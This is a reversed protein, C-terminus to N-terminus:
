DNPYDYYTIGVRGEEPFHELVVRFKKGTGLYTAWKAAENMLSRFDAAGVPKYMMLAGNEKVHERSADEFNKKAALYGRLAEDYAEKTGGSNM